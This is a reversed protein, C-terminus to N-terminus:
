PRARARAARAYPPGGRALVQFNCGAPAAPRVSQSHVTLWEHNGGFSGNLFQARPEVINVQWVAGLSRRVVKKAVKRAELPLNDCRVQGSPQAAPPHQVNPAVRTEVANFEGPAACLHQSN